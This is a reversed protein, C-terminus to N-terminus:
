FANKIWQIEPQNGQISVVDFRVPYKEHLKNVLLYYDATNRIKTQKTLTISELANGYKSSNRARVEVFVLYVGDHMILDIEGIKCRYNSSKYKLGKDILYNKAIEEFAFGKTLSM